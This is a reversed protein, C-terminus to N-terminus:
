AGRAVARRAAARGPADHAHGLFLVGRHALTRINGKVGASASRFLVVAAFVEAAIPAFLEDRMRTNPGYWREFEEHIIGEV